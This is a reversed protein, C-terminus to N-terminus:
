ATHDRRCGSAFDFLGATECAFAPAYFDGSAGGGSRAIVQSMIRAICSAPTVIPEWVRKWGNRVFSGRWM